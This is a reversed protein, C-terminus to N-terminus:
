LGYVSTVVPRPPTDVYHMGSQRSARNVSGWQFSWVSEASKLHCSQISNQIQIKTKPKQIRFESNQSAAQQQDTAERIPKQVWHKAVFLKSQIQM